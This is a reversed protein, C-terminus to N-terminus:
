NKAVQITTYGTPYYRLQGDVLIAYHRITPMKVKLDATPIGEGYYIGQATVNGGENIVNVVTKGVEM